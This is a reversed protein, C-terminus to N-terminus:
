KMRMSVKVRENEVRVNPQKSKQFMHGCNCKKVRNAVFDNCNPCKKTPGPNLEVDGSVILLMAIINAYVILSLCKMCEHIVTVDERKLKCNKFSMRCAFSGISARWQELSDM